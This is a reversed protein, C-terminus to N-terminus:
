EESPEKKKQPKPPHAYARLSEKPHTEIERVRHVNAALDKEPDFQARYSREDRLADKRNLWIFLAAGIAIALLTLGISDFILTTLFNLM